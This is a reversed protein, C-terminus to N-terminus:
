AAIKFEYPEVEPNASFLEAPGVIKELMYAPLNTDTVRVETVEADRAVAGIAAVIDGSELKYTPESSQIDVELQLDAVGTETDINDLEGAAILRNPLAQDSDRILFTERDDPENDESPLRGEEVLFLPNHKKGFEDIVRAPKLQRRSPSM